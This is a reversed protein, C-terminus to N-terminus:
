EHLIEDVLKERQEESLSDWDLGRDRAVAEVRPRNRELARELYGAKPLLRRLADRRAKPSLDDLSQIIQEEPIDIKPM